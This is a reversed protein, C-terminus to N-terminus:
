LGQKHIDLLQQPFPQRARGQKLVKEAALDLREMQSSHYHPHIRPWTTRITGEERLQTVRLDVGPDLPDMSM